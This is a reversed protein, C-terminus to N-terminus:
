VKAEGGRRGILRSRRELEQEIRSLGVGHRRAAVLAFYIVDAAEWTSEAANGAEILEGAEEILKARLLEPDDLLRRTYSGSPASHVRRELIRDLRDLGSAEGFCSPTGNHCFGTGQQEVTFRLADRDCDASIRVLRQTAGSTAGKRWLGGRSRSFYVGAGEEISARVSELSSYALGLARGQEDAVITPWLGDPRDSRLPACLGDALDMAGTYLSMGVQADAGARDALVVDEADRVGGAVTLRADGCLRALAEVRAGPLGGMRGEREVFTVLFGGVFPRLQEIRDEVLEGTEAQWGEVVVRGDVGDLAAIVRGRPLERLVEPRAATGLIVREAGADLWRRASEATRIGGGVRCRALSLLEEILEANSGRGMAADLDIVAIEGVRGFRRALPRPDGAEIVKEKGGVLQVAQGDMIDISPVIM